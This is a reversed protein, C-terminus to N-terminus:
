PRKFFVKVDITAGVASQNSIVMSIPGNAKACGLVETGNATTALLPVARETATASRNALMGGMLDLGDVDNLVIDYAATPATGPNTIVQYICWGKLKETVDARTTATPVTGDSADGIVHFSLVATKDDHYEFSQTVSGAAFVTLPLLLSCFIIIFKKM